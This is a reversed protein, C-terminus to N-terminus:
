GASPGRAVATNAGLWLALAAPALQLFLRDASFRLQWALENPTGLYVAYEGALMVAFLAATALWVRRPPRPRAFAWAVAGLLVVLGTAGWAAGDGLVRAWASWVEAHRAGDLWPSASGGQRALLDNAPGVRKLLLAASVPAAAGLAFRLLSRPPQRAVVLAVVAGALFLQGENKTWAALGALLGALAVRSAEGDGQELQSVLSVAAALLLCALPADAYFRSAWVQLAPLAAVAAGAVAGPLVGARARVFSFAVLAASLWFAWQVARPVAPSESGAWAWARAVSAPWLLPYDGHFWGPRAPSVLSALGEAGGRSLTRAKLLWQTLADSTGWTMADMAHRLHAASLVLVLGLLLLAARELGDSPFVDALALRARRPSASRRLAWGALTLATLELALEGFWGAGAWRAGIFLLSTVGLGVPMALAAVQLRALSRRSLWEVLVAGLAAALALSLVLRM